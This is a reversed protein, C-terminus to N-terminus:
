TLTERSQQSLVSLFQKFQLHFSKTTLIQTKNLSSTSAISVLYHAPLRFGMKQQQYQPPISPQTTTGPNYQINGGTNGPNQQQSWSGSPPPQNYQYQQNSPQQQYPYTPPQSSGVGPQQTQYNTGYQQPQQYQTPPQSPQSGSQTQQPPQQPASQTGSSGAPPVQAILGEVQGNKEIKSIVLSAGIIAAIALLFFIPAFGKESSYNKESKLRPMLKIYLSQELM